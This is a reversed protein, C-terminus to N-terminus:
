EVRLRISPGLRWNGFPTEGAPPSVSCGRYSLSQQRVQISDEWAQNNWEVTSVFLARHAERRTAAFPVPDLGPQERVDTQGPAAEAHSLNLILAPTDQRWCSRLCVAAVLSASPPTLSAVM